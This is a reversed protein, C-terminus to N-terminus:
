NATSVTYAVTCTNVACASGCAPVLGLTVFYANGNNNITSNCPQVVTQVGATAGTTAGFGCVSNVERNGTSTGIGVFTVNYTAAEDIIKCSLNTVTAGDPLHLPANLYVPSTSAGTLYRSVPRLNNDEFAVTSSSAVFEAAAVPYYRTQASAYTYSGARATTMNATGSVDLPYAPAGNLVGVRNKAFDLFL